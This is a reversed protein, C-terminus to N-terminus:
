KSRDPSSYYTYLGCFISGPKEPMAACNLGGSYSSHVAFSSKGTLSSRAVRSKFELRLSAVMKFRFPHEQSNQWQLIMPTDNLMYKVFHPFWPLVHLHSTKGNVDHELRPHPYSKIWFSNYGYWSVLHIRDSTTLSGLCQCYYWCQTRPWLYMSASHHWWQTNLWETKM